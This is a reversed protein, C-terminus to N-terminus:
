FAIRDGAASASAAKIVSYSATSGSFRFFNGMTYAEHALGWQIDIIDDVGKVVTGQIQEIFFEDNIESPYRGTTNQVVVRSGLEGNLTSIIEAATRRTPAMRPRALKRSFADLMFTAFAALETSDDNFDFDRKWTRDRVPSSSNSRIIYNEDSNNRVPEGRIEFKQIYATQGTKNDWVIQFGGGYSTFSDVVVHSTVDNGSGDQQDNFTYDTVPEPEVVNRASGQPYEGNMANDPHTSGPQVARGVPFLSYIPVVTSDALLGSRRIRVEDVFDDMRVPAYLFRQLTFTGISAESARARRNKWTLRGDKAVFLHSGPEERSARRFSEMPSAQHSWWFALTTVGTDFNVEAAAIQTLARITELLQDVRQNEQLAIRLNGAMLREFMDSCVLRTKPVPSSDHEESLERIYGTYQEYRIGLHIISLQMKRGPFLNDFLAGASDFPSYLGAKNNLVVVANGVGFDETVGGRGRQWNVQIVDDTIDENADIFDGDNNWDVLAELHLDKLGDFNVPIAISAWDDDTDTTWSMTTSSGGATERSAALCNAVTDPFTDGNKTQGAGESASGPSGEQAMFDVVLDNEDSTAAISPTTSSGTGTTEADVPTTQDVRYLVVAVASWAGNSGITAVFSDNLATKLGAEEMSCVTLKM